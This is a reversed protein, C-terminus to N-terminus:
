QGLAQVDARRELEAAERILMSALADRRKHQAVDSGARASVDRLHAAAEVLCEAAQAIAVGSPWSRVEDLGAAARTRALDLYLDELGFDPQTPVPQEIEREVRRV